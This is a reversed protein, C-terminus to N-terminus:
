LPRPGELLDAYGHMQPGLLALVVETVLCWQGGKDGSM